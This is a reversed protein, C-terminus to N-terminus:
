RVPVSLGVMDQPIPCISPVEYCIHVVAEHVRHFIISTRKKRDVVDGIENIRQELLLWLRPILVEAEGSSPLPMTYEFGVAHFTPVNIIRCFPEEAIAAKKDKRLVQYGGHVGNESYLPVGLEEIEQLDRLMTRYSVKLEDALQGVTFKHGANMKEILELLRRAKGVLLRRNVAFLYKSFHSV